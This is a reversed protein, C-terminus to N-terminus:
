IACNYERKLRVELFHRIANCLPLALNEQFDSLEGKIDEGFGTIIPMLWYLSIMGLFGLWFFMREVGGARIKLGVSLSGTVAWPPIV